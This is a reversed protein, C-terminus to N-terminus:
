APRLAAMAFVTTLYSSGFYVPFRGMRYYAAAPWSGDACQASALWTRHRDQGASLGLHDAALTRLAIDLASVPVRVAATAEREALAQRAPAALVQASAPFRSCLRAVAYLFADPSPYYRTGALYRGSSLHDRLYLTTAEIVALAQGTVPRPAMQVTYLANTCAVADHKRGRRLTSPEKGDEWYVMFVDRRVSEEECPGSPHAPEAVRPASSLLEHVGRDLGADTLLGHDHLAGTALATCDTDAPFGGTGPFFRYREGWRCTQVQTGLRRALQGTVGRDGRRALTPLLVLAVMASFAEGELDFGPDVGFRNRLVGRALSGPFSQGFQPDLSLLVPPAGAPGVSGSVFDLARGAADQVAVATVPATRSTTTGAVFVTM